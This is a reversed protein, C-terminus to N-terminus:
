RAAWILAGGFLVAVASWVRTFGPPRRLWWQVYLDFRREGILVIAVGAAMTIVGIIMVVAPHRCEPAAFILIAGLVLRVLSATWFRGPGHWSGILDLLYRPTVLGVLGPLVILVGIITVLTQM